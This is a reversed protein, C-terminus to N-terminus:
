QSKKLFINFILAIGSISIGIYFIHNGTLGWFSYHLIKFFGGMIGIFIGIALAINSLIIKM